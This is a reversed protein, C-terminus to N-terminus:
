QSKVIPDLKHVRVAWKIFEPHKKFLKRKELDWNFKPYKAFDEPTARLLSIIRCKEKIDVPPHSTNFTACLPVIAWFENIQKGSYIWCHEMTPNDSFTICCHKFFDDSAIQKRIKQSIARM